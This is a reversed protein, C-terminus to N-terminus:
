EGYPKCSPWEIDPQMLATSDDEAVNLLVNRHECAPCIFYIGDADVEPAVQAFLWRSKCNRCKWM